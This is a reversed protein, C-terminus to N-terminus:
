RVDTRADAPGCVSRGTLSVTMEVHDAEEAIRSWGLAVLSEITGRDAAPVRAGAVALGRDRATETLRRFLATGVGHYQAVESTEVSVDARPLSDANTVTYWGVGLAEDGAFAGVRVAAEVDVGPPEHDAPSLNRLVTPATDMPDSDVPPVPPLYSWQRSVMADADIVWASGKATRGPPPAEPLGHARVRETLADFVEGHTCLLVGDFDTDSVFQHLAVISTDPALLPHDEVPMGLAAALPALTQRCRVTPSSWLTRVTLGSLVDALHEAQDYGAPSLPRDRDNGTWLKKDGAHAHRVMVYM